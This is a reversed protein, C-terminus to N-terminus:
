PAPSLGRDLGALLARCRAIEHPDGIREWLSCAHELQQRAAEPSGAQAELLGLHRHYDALGAPDELERWLAYSQQLAERAGALDGQLRYVDGLDAWLHALGTRDGTEAFLARAQAAHELAAQADNLSALAVALHHHLHGRGSLDEAPRCALARRLYWLARRPRGLRWHALGMLDMIRSCQRRTEPAEQEGISRARRWAQRALRLTTQWDGRNWALRALEYGAETVRLRDGLERLM